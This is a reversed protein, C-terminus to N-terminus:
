VLLKLTVNSLNGLASNQSEGALSRFNQLNHQGHPLLVHDAQLQLTAAFAHGFHSFSGVQGM